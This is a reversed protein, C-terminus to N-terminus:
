LDKKCIKCWSILPHMGDVPIPRKCKFGPACKHKVKKQENSKKDAM